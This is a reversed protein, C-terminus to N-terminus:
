TQNTFWYHLRLFGSYFNSLLTHIEVLLVNHPNYMLVTDNVLSFKGSTLHFSHWNASSSSSNNCSGFRKSDCTTLVLKWTHNLVNIQMLQEQLNKLTSQSFHSSAHLWHLRICFMWTHVYMTLGNIGHLEITDSFIITCDVVKKNNHNIPWHKLAQLSHELNVKQSV